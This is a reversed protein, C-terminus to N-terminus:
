RGFPDPGVYAYSQVRDVAWLRGDPGTIFIPNWDRAADLPRPIEVVEGTAPDAAELLRPAGYEDADLSYLLGDPAFDGRHAGQWSNFEMVDAWTDTAPDYAAIESISTAYIRDQWAVLNFVDTIVTNESTPSAMGTAPDVAVLHSGDPVNFYLNGGPGTAVAADVVEGDILFPEVTWPTVTPDIVWQHSYIRGDGAQAWRQTIDDTFSTGPLEVTWETDGEGISIAMYAGRSMYPSRFVVLRGDDLMLADDVLWAEADPMPPLAAWHSDAVPEPTASPTTVPSATPAESPQAATPTPSSPPTATPSPSPLSSAPTASPTAIDSASPAGAVGRQGLAMALVSGTAIAAIATAATALAVRPRARLTAIFRRVPDTSSM